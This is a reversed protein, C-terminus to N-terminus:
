SPDTVAQFRIVKPNSTPIVRYFYFEGDYPVPVHVYKGRNDSKYAWKNENAIYKGEPTTEYSLNSKSDISHHSLKGENGSGRQLVRSAADLGKIWM